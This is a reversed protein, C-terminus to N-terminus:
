SVESRIDRTHKSAGALCGPWLWLWVKEREERDPPSCTVQGITLYLNAEMSVLISVYVLMIIINTHRSLEFDSM